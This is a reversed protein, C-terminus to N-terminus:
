KETYGASFTFDATLPIVDPFPFNGVEVAIDNEGNKLAGTIDFRFLTYGGRHEGIHAGNVYVNAVSNAGYFELYYLTNEKKNLTIKKIYCCAGRFYDGGGDQGDLNNWTHPLDIKQM